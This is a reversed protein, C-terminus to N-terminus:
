AVATKKRVDFSGELFRHMWVGSMFFDDLLGSYECIKTLQGGVSDDGRRSGPRVDDGSVHRHTTAHSAKRKKGPKKKESDPYKCKWKKQM